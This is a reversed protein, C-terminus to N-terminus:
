ALDSSDLLVHRDQYQYAKFFLIFLIRVHSQLFMPTLPFYSGNCNTVPNSFYKNVMVIYNLFALM